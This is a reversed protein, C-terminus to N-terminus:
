YLPRIAEAEGRAKKPLRKDQTAYSGYNERELAARLGPSPRGKQFPVVQLHDPATLNHREIDRLVSEQDARAKAQAEPTEARQEAVMASALRTNFTASLDNAARSARNIAGYEEMARAVGTPQFGMARKALNAPDRLTEGTPLTQDRDLIKRGTLRAVSGRTQWQLARLPDAIAEPSLRIAASLPDGRGVATGADLPRMVLLDFPVGLLPAVQRLADDGFGPNPMIDGMGVRKSLDVGTVERAPGRAVMRGLLGGGAIARLERELDIDKDTVKKYVYEAWEKLDDAGPLGFLGGFVLLMLASLALAGKGAAGEHMFGMRWFLELTNATFGKFQFILSGPGRMFTPRNLKGMVYHTEDSAWKAFGAPTRWEDSSAWLENSALVHSAKAMVGPMRALRHAAIFTAIRNVREAASFALAALDMAKRAGREIQRGRPTRGHAKAMEQFTELPVLTGDAFAKKLDARVDEPAKDPDFITLKKAADVSMMQSLDTYARGLQINVRAPDAFQSLYPMTVVPVQTLNVAASSIRGALYYLFGAQRLRAWEESPAQIYEHWDTAYRKLKSTDNPIRALAEEFDDRAARRGLYGALGTVYDALSRDFDASYGAVNRANIFHKRFGMEKIVRNVAEEVRAATAVDLHAASLLGSIDALSPLDEITKPTVRQVNSVTFGASRPYMRMLERRREEITAAWRRRQIAGVPGRWTGGPVEFHERHVIDSDGSRVTVYWQGFRTFPVYGRKRAMEVEALVNAIKGLREATPADGADSAEKAMEEFERATKPTGPLSPDFGWERLMQDKFLDLARDMTRRVALYGLAEDPSLTVTEGAKSLAAGGISGTGATGVTNRTVIRGDTGPRFTEGQLRGLELVKNVNAKQENSLKDYAEKLGILEGAVRDRTAFQKVGANWVPTFAPYMAAITRPHIMSRQFGGLDHEFPLPRAPTTPPKSHLTDLASRLTAEKKEPRTDDRVAQAQMTSFDEVARQAAARETAPESPQQEAYWGREIATFLDKFDPERGFVRRVAARVRRFFEDVKRFVANVAPPLQLWTARRGFEDAIAEELMLDGDAGPYRTEIDHKGIWNREMATTELTRWAARDIIGLQRLLHITEHRVTGIPDPSQTSIAILNALPSYSGFHAGQDDPNDTFLTDVVTLAPANGGAMRQVIARLQPELQARRAEMEPTLRYVGIMDPAVREVRTVGPVGSIAMGAQLKSGPKAASINGSSGAGGEPRSRMPGSLTPNAPGYVGGIGGPNGEDWGTLLWTEQAGHRWLSLVARHGDYSIHVRRGVEPGQLRDINGRAIVEPMRKLVAEGHKALIHSVGAGKKFRPGTGPQGWDFTIPGLDPRYMAAMVQGTKRRSLDDIASLGRAIERKIRAETWGPAAHYLSGGKRGAMVKTRWYEAQLDPEVVLEANLTSLKRDHANARLNELYDAALQDLDAPKAFDEVILPKFAKFLASRERPRRRGADLDLAYSLLRRHLLDPATYTVPRGDITDHVVLDPRGASSPAVASREFDSQAQASQAPESTPQPQERAREAKPIDLALSYQVGKEGFGRQLMSAVPTAASMPGEYITEGNDDVVRMYPVGQRLWREQVTGDQEGDATDVTVTAGVSITSVVAGPEVSPAVPAPPPAAPEVAPSSVPAAPRYALPKKTDGKALWAKFEPMTMTTAAGRRAAGSGDNFGADYLALAEAQSDAGLVIKHEDFRGTEPDIQDIVTVLGSQPNDGVYVDVQDGDKGVTRKIYGYHAPAVSSWPQGDSGIGTRVDGRATEIAIDLGDIRIHGKRYNGADAQAPTPEPDAQAAAADVDAGTEVDMPETRAGKGELAKRFADAMATDGTEQQVQAVLRDRTLQEHEAEAARQREAMIEEVPRKDELVEKLDAASPGPRPPTAPAAHDRAGALSAVEAPAGFAEGAIEAMIQGPQLEQGSALEGLAEGAGGLAGQAGVQAPINLAERVIPKAVARPVLTKTALGASAADLAAVPGAHLAARQRIARNMEPDRLAAEVAAPDSVDVGADNLADVLQTAFDVAFSGGGMGLMAAVRGRLAGAGGGLLLGPASAPLSELGTEVIFRGPADTFADWFEGWTKANLARQTTESPPTKGAEAQRQVMTTVNRGLSAQMDARAQRRQEENMHQYGVPDDSEPVNEGSDIRDFTDLMSAATTAGAASLGAGLGYTGARLREKVMTSQLPPRARRWRPDTLFPEDPQESPEAPAAEFPNGEVPTFKPQASQSPQKFPDGEVPVLRPGKAKVKEVYSSTENPVPGTRGGAIWRDVNGPGWNYAMLATDVDGYKRIMAGLYQQGFRRSQEPDSPDSLPEVGYGPSRATAPMIQAVGTAGKPSVADARGGSEVSLVADVLQPDPQTFPDHDVEVLKM